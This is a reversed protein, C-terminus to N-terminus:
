ISKARGLWKRKTVCESNGCTKQYKNFEGTSTYCEKRQEGCVPCPKVSRQNRRSNGQSVLKTICDANGCTKNYRGYNIGKNVPKGCIPCFRDNILRKGKNPNQGGVRNGAVPDLNYGGMSWHANLKEIWHQERELINTIDIVSELMTFIFNESGYKNWAAQLYKSNIGKKLKWKHTRWRTIVGTSASGVYVQNTDINRIEYIGPEKTNLTSDVVM